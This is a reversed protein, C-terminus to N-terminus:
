ACISVISIDEFVAMYRDEKAVYSFINKKFEYEKKIPYFRSLHKSLKSLWEIACLGYLMLCSCKICASLWAVKEYYM